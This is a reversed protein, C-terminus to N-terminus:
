YLKEDWKIKPLTIELVYNPTELVKLEELISNYMEEASTVITQLESFSTISSHIVSPIITDNLSPYIM